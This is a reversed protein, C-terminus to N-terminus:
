RGGIGVLHGSKNKIIEIEKIKAYNFLSRMGDPMYRFTDIPHRHERWQWPAIICVYKKFCAEINVMWEWPREVHEM